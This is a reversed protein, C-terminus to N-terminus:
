YMEERTFVGRYLASKKNYYAWFRDGYDFHWWESPFNTFGAETMVHYLLRRNDRVEVNEEKKEFFTTYTKDSFADFDTGMELEYGEKGIITLDIAGGTTHVPPIDRNLVPELVFKTIVAKKQEESSENLHFERMIKNSYVEYLEQQLAFPRWADFIKFKYGAPLKNAAENLMKYVEERVFCHQEAHCMGMKPYQMDVTIMDNSLIEVFKFDRFDRDEYLEPESLEPISKM